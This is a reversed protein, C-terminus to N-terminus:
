LSQGGRKNGLEERIKLSRNYYDLAKLMEGNNRYIAGINNLSTAISKKNGLHEKIELSRLYYDLAQNTEGQNVYIIGINNLSIAIALSDNIEERIKLSKHYYNLSEVVKGQDDYIYGINNYAGSLIIQFSMRENRTINGELNRTSIEVAKEFLVIVTDFNILYLIESLDLYAKAVLTDHKAEEIINNLSDLRQNEKESLKCFSTSSWVLLCSLLVIHHLKM